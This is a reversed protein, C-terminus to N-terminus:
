KGNNIQSSLVCVAVALVTAIVIVLIPIAIM